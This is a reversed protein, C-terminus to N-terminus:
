YTVFYVFLSKPRLEEEFYNFLLARQHARSEHSRVSCPLLFHWLEDLFISINSFPKHRKHRNINDYYNQSDSIRSLSSGCNPASVSHTLTSLEILASVHGRRLKGSYNYDFRHHPNPNIFVLTKKLLITGFLYGGLNRCLIQGNQLRIIKFDTICFWGFVTRKLIIACKTKQRKEQFVRADIEDNKMSFHDSKHVKLFSLVSGM